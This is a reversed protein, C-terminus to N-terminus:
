MAGAAVYMLWPLGYLYGISLVVIMPLVYWLQKIEVNLAKAM